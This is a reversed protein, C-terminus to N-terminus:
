SRGGLLASVAAVRAAGVSVAAAVVCEFIEDETHGADLLGQVLEDTVGHGGARVAEALPELAPDIPRSATAAVRALERDSSEVAM